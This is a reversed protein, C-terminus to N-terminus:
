FFIKVNQIASTQYKSKLNPNENKIESVDSKFNIQSKLVEKLNINGDRLDKFLDILNQYNSFDKLSMGETIYKYIM